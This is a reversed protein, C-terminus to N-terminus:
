ERLLASISGLGYNRKYEGFKGEITNKTGRKHPIRKEDLDTKDREPYRELKPGSLRISREEYFKSNERSRYNQDAHIGMGIQSFLCLQRDPDGIDKRRIRGQSSIEIPQAHPQQIIFIRHDTQNTKNEYTFRQERYIEQIVLM